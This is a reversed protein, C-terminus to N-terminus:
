EQVTWANRPLWLEPHPQNDRNWNHATRPPYFLDKRKVFAVHGDAFLINYGKGHLPRTEELANGYLIMHICGSLGKVIGTGAFLDRFTRSDAVTFMESPAHVEPEPALSAPYRLGLGLPASQNPQAVGKANYAYSTYVSVNGSPPPDVEIIGGNAIYTPCHWSRNTWNLPSYPLLRDAWIQFHGTEGGWLPPYRHNDLSVYMAMSLGIQRLHNKCATSQAQAKARSLAPLLLAALIAIIAIVVLLEVLTFGALLPGLQSRCRSQHTVAM